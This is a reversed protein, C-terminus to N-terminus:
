DFKLFDINTGNNQPNNQTNINNLNQQQPPQINNNNKGTNNNNMNNFDLFGLNNQDFTPQQNTGDTIQLFINNFQNNNNM